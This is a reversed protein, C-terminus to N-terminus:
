LILNFICCSKLFVCQSKLEKGTLYIDLVDFAVLSVSLALNVSRNGPKKIDAQRLLLDLLRGWHISTHIEDVPMVEDTNSFIQM